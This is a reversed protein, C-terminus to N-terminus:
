FSILIIKNNKYFYNINSCDQNNKKIWSLFVKDGPKFGKVNKGLSLVIGSGEHGLLHPLWKKNERKGDIEMLQSKCIGAYKLKVLIQDKGPNKIPIAVIDLKKKLNKLVAARFNKRM